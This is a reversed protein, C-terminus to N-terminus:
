NYHFLLIFVSKTTTLQQWQTCFKKNHKSISDHQGFSIYLLARQFINQVVIYLFLTSITCMAQETLQTSLFRQKTLCYKMISVSTSLTNVKSTFKKTVCVGLHKSYLDINSDIANSQTINRLFYLAVDSNGNSM